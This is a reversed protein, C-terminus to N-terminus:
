SRHLQVRDHIQVYAGVPVDAVLGLKVGLNVVDGIDTRRISAGSGDIVRQIVHNATHIADTDAEGVLLRSM